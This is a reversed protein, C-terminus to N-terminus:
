KLVEKEIKSYHEKLNRREIAYKSIPIGVQMKEFERSTYDEHYNCMLHIVLHTYNKM